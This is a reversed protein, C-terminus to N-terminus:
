HRIKTELYWRGVLFSVLAKQSFPETGPRSHPFCLTIRSCRMTDFHLSTSLFSAPTNSPLPLQASLTGQPWFHFIQAIFYVTTCYFLSPQLGYILVFICSDISMYISLLYILSFTKRVSKWVIFVSSFSCFICNGSSYWM